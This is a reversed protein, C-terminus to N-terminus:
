SLKTGGSKLSGLIKELPDEKSPSMNSHSRVVAQIDGMLLAAEQLIGSTIGTAKSLEIIVDANGGEGASEFKDASALSNELESVLRKLLSLNVKNTKLAVKTM